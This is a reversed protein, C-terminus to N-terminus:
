AELELIRQKLATCKENDCEQNGAKCEAFHKEYIHYPVIENCKPHYQCKFKLEHLQRMIHKNPQHFAKSGCRRPCEKVKLANVCKECYLM